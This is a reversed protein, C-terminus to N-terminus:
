QYGDDNGNGAARGLVELRTKDEWTAGFVYSGVCAAVVGLCGTLGAIALSGDAKYYVAGYALFGAIVLCIGCVIFMFTRRIVWKTEPLNIPAM